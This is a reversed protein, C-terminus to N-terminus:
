VRRVNVAQSKGSKSDPAVEFSVRMGDQPEVGPMAKAHFFIDSSNGDPTIFGFGRDEFFRKVIGQHM